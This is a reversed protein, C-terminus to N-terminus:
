FTGTQLPVADVFICPDLFSTRENIDVLKMMKGCQLWMSNGAMKIDDM